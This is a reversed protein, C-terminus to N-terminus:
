LGPTNGRLSVTEKPLSFQRQRGTTFSFLKGRLQEQPLSTLQYCKSCAAGCDWSSTPSCAQPHSARRLFLGPTHYPSTLCVDFSWSSLRLHSAVQTTYM